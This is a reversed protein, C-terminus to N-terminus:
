EEGQGGALLCLLQIPRVEVLLQLLSLLSRRGEAPADDALDRIGQLFGLKYKDALVSM